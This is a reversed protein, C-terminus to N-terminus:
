VKRLKEIEVELESVRRELRTVENESQELDVELGRIEDEYENRQDSSLHTALLVEKLEAAHLEIQDIAHRIQLNDM